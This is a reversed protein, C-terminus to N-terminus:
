MNVFADHELISETSYPTINKVDLMEFNRIEVYDKMGPSTNLIVGGLLFVRDCHFEDKAKEVLFHIRRHINEYTVETIEKIPNSSELIRQKFPMVTRELLVQQYDFEDNIPIYVDDERKIRELALVLAGCSNSFNKQGPRLMKGLEGDDTVGIHPGYFIFADGGDPIHHGYAVMGTFGTYPLGGLGGMTFPRNLVRRFDTSVNIDDSCISTAFLMKNLDAAYKDELYSLYTATVEEGTRAGPYEKLILKEISNSM